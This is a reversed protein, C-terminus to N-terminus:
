RAAAGLLLAISDCQVQATLIALDPNCAYIANHLRGLQQAYYLTQM